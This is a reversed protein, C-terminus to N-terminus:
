KFIKEFFKEKSKGFNKDSYQLSNITGEIGLETNDLSFNNLHLDAGKVVLLGM